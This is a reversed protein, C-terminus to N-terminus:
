STTVLNRHCKSKNFPLNRHVSIQRCIYLISYKQSPLFSMLRITKWIQSCWIWGRWLQIQTGHMWKYLEWWCNLLFIFKYLYLTSTCQMISLTWHCLLLDTLHIRPQKAKSNDLTESTRNWFQKYGNIKAQTKTCISGKIKIKPPYWCTMRLRLVFVFTFTTVCRIVGTNITSKNTSSM